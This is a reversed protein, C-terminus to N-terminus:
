SEEDEVAVQSQNLGERTKDLKAKQIEDTLEKERVEIFNITHILTPYLACCVLAVTWFPMMYGGISYLVAGLLPGLLMGIGVGGELIAICNERDDPFCSTIIAMACTSNLGAGIGGLTQAVFSLAIFLTM